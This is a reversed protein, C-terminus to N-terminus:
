CSRRTVQPSKTGILQGRIEVLDADYDGRLAQVATVAVPTVPKSYGATKYTARTLSPTFAGIIPFGIVDALDGLSLPTSQDTQACVGKLNDEICLLRGPWTLTVTGRTHVLHHSASNPTFRLLGSVPTVPLAFPHEPAPKEVTMQARTPFFLHVGTLQMQHNFLPAENGRIRVKADVWVTITWELNSSPSPQLPAM